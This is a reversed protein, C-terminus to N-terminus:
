KSSPKWEKIIRQIEALDDMLERATVDPLSNILSALPNEEEEDSSFLKNLSDADDPKEEKKEEKIEAVPAVAVPAPAITAPAPKLAVVPVGKPAAAVKAATVETIKVAEGPKASDDIEDLTVGAGNQLDEPELTLEAAPGHPRVPTVDLPIEIGASTRLGNLKETAKKLDKTKGNVKAEMEATPAVTKNEEGPKDKKNKSGLKGLSFNTLAKIRM